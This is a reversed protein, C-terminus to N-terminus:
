TNKDEESDSPEKYDPLEEVLVTREWDVLGGVASEYRAQKRMDELEAYTKRKPGKNLLISPDMSTSQRSKTKPYSGRVFGSGIILENNYFFHDSYEPFKYIKDGM